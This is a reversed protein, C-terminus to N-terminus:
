GDQDEDEEDEEDEDEEDEYGDEYGYICRRIYFAVKTGKFMDRLSLLCQEATQGDPIRQGPFKSAATVDPASVDLDTLHPYLGKKCDTAINQAMERFSSKCEEIHLAQLTAPFQPHAALYAHSVTLHKLVSFDAFSGYKVLTSNYEEFSGIEHAFKENAIEVHFYELTDKHQLAEETVQAANFGPLCGFPGHPTYRFSKLSKCARM